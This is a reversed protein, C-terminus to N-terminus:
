LDGGGGLYFGIALVLGALSLVLGLALAVWGRQRAPRRHWKVRPPANRGRLIRDAILELPPISRDFPNPRLNMAGLVAILIGICLMLAFSILSTM